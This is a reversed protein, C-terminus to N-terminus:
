PLPWAKVFMEAQERKEKEEEKKLATTIGEEIVQAWLKHVDAPLGVHVLLNM